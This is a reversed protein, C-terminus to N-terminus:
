GFGAAHLCRERLLKRRRRLVPHGGEVSVAAGGVARGDTFSGEDFVILGDSGSPAGRGEVRVVATNDGTREVSTVQLGEFSDGLRVTASSLGDAFPLDSVVEVLAYKERERARGARRGRCCEGCPLGNRQFEPHHVGGNGHRGALLVRGGGFVGHTRALRGRRRVGQCSASACSRCGAGAALLVSMGSRSRRARVRDRSLTGAPWFCSSQPRWLRSRWPRARRAMAPLRSRRAFFGAEFAVPVRLELTEGVPLTEREAVTSAGEGALKMGQPLRVELRAGSWAATGDNTVRFTVTAGEGAAYSEKDFSGVVQPVAGGEAWAAQPCLTPLLAAALLVAVALFACARMRSAVADRYRALVELRDSRVSESPCTEVPLM